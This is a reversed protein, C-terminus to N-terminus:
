QGMKEELKPIVIKEAYHTRLSATIAASMRTRLVSEPVILKIQSETLKDRWAPFDLDILEKIMMERREKEKKKEELMQKLALDQPSIYNPENWKQGKRVVGMFVNLPESYSKTKENHEISYAFHNISEQVVQPNTIKTEYLQKLQTESFGLSCLAQFNIEKWEEPLSTTTKNNNLLNSSSYITPALPNALPAALPDPLIAARNNSHDIMWQYLSKPLEFERYANQGSKHQTVKIGGKKSIRFILNRVREASIKLTDRIEETSIPPSILSCNNHCQWFILTLLDREKKSFVRLDIFQIEETKALPKALAQSLSHSVPHKSIALPASVAPERNALSESVTHERNALPNNTSEQVVQDIENQLVSTTTKILSAHSSDDSLTQTTSSSEVPLAVEQNSAPPSNKEQLKHSPNNQAAIVKTPQKLADFAGVKQKSFFQKLRDDAIAV